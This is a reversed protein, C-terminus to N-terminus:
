IRKCQEMLKCCNGDETVRSNAECECRGKKNVGDEVPVLNPECEAVCSKGDLDLYNECVCQRVDPDSTPVSDQDPACEELCSGDPAIFKACVCLKNNSSDM